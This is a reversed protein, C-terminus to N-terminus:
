PCNAVQTHASNCPSRPTEIKVLRGTELSIACRTSGVRVKVIEVRNTETRAATGIPTTAAHFAPEHISLTTM